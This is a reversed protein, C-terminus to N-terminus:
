RSGPKKKGAAPKKNGSAPKPKGPKKPTPEDDLEPGFTPKHSMKPVGFDLDPGWGKRGAPFQRIVKIAAPKTTKPKEKKAPM